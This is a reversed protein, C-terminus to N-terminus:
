RTRELLTSITFTQELGVIYFEIIIKYTYNTNTDVDVRVVQIRPEYKTLVQIIMTRIIEKTIPTDLEFLMTYVQSSIEPHFPVSYPKMMILTVVSQKIAAVDIKKSVDGTIPNAQFTLDLDLFSQTVKSITIAM